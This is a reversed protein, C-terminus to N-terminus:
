WGRSPISIRHIRCKARWQEQGDKYIVFTPWWVVEAAAQVKAGEDDIDNVQYILMCQDMVLM